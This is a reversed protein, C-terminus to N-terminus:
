NDKIAKACKNKLSFLQKNVILIYNILNFFVYSNTLIISAKLFNILTLDASLKCIIESNLKDLMLLVQIYYAKELAEQRGIDQKYCSLINALM